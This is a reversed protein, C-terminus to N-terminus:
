SLQAGESLLRTLVDCEQSRPHVLSWLPCVAEGVSQVLPGTAGPILLALTLPLGM